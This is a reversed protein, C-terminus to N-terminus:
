FRFRVGAVLREGTVQGGAQREFNATDDLLRQWEYGVYPAIERWIECRLRAASTGRGRTCRVLYWQTNAGCLPSRASIV